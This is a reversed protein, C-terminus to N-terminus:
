ILKKVEPGWEELIKAQENRLMEMRIASKTQFFKACIQPLGWIVLWGLSTIGYVAFWVNINGIFSRAMSTPDQARWLDMLYPLVGSMNFAAITSSAYKPNNKDIMHATISPLIALVFFTFAYRSIIFVTIALIATTIKSIILLGKSPPPPPSNNSAKAM